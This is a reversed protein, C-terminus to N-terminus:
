QAPPADTPPTEPAPPPYQPPGSAPPEPTSPTPPEPTAARTQHRPAGSGSPAAATAAGSTLRNGVLSVIVGVVGVLAAVYFVPFFTTGVIDYIGRFPEAQAVHQSLIVAGIIGILAIHWSSNFVPWAVAWLRNWGTNFVILLVALAAAIIWLWLSQQVAAAHGAATLTSPTIGAHAVLNNTWSPLQPLPSQPVGPINVGSQQVFPTYSGTFEQLQPPLKFAANPGNTYYVNAIASYIARSGDAFSKGAIAHAPIPVTTFPLTVPQSPQAQAQQEIQQYLATGLGTDNAILVPNILDTGARTLLNTATARESIRALATSWLAGLLVLALAVAVWREFTTKMQSQFSAMSPTPNEPNQMSSIRRIFEKIVLSVGLM